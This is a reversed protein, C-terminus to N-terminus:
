RMESEVGGFFQIETQRTNGRVHLHNLVRVSVTVGDFIHTMEPHARTANRCLLLVSM